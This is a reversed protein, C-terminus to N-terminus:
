SLTLNGHKTSVVVDFGSVFSDAAAGLEYLEGAVVKINAAVECTGRKHDHRETSITLLDYNYAEELIKECLYDEFWGERDYDELMGEDRMTELIDEDYRSLVTVGPTALSRALVLATDTEGLATDIYDDSIHWVDARDEYNLYVYEEPGIDLNRLTDVITGM